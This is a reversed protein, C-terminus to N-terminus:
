GYADHCLWGGSSGRHQMRTTQYVTRKTWKHSNLSFYVIFCKKKKKACGGQSKFGVFTRKFYKKVTLYKVPIKQACSPIM